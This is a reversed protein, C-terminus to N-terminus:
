PPEPHPHLWPHPPAPYPAAIINTNNMKNTITIPALAKSPLYSSKGKIKKIIFFLLYGFL